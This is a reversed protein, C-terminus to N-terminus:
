GATKAGRCHKAPLAGTANADTLDVSKIVHAVDAFSGNEATLADIVGKVKSSAYANGADRSENFQSQGAADKAFLTLTGANAATANDEIIYWDMDNFRVAKDPLTEETDGSKVRYADYVSPESVTVACSAAKTSDANSTVTVTADGAQVGKAYVTLTATADTGVEDTCDSDSYLRVNGNGVSWKVTKDSAGNPGAPNVIATFAVTDGVRIAQAASPDLTVDTVAVNSEKEYVEIKTFQVSHASIVKLQYINGAAQYGPAIEFTQTGQSGKVATSVANDGVFVNFQTSASGTDSGTFVIKGVDFNFAPLELYSNQKGVLLYSYNKKYGYTAGYLKISHTGDTYALQRQYALFRTPAITHHFM